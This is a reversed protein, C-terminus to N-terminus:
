LMKDFSWCRLYKQNFFFRIKLLSINPSFFSCPTFLISTMHRALHFFRNSTMWSWSSIRILQPGSMKTGYRCILFGVQCQPGAAVNDWIFDVTPPSFWINGRHISYDRDIHWLSSNVIPCVQFLIHYQSLKTIAFNILYSSLGQTIISPSIKDIGPVLFYM